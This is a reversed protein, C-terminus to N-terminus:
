PTLWQNTWNSWKWQPIFQLLKESEWTCSMLFLRWQRTWHGRGATILHTV